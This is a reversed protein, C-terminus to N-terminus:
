QPRSLVREGRHAGGSLLASAFAVHRELLERVRAPRKVSFGGVTM